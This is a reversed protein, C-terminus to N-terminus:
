TDHIMCVLFITAVDWMSKLMEALLFQIQGKLDIESIVTKLGPVTKKKSNVWGNKSQIRTIM